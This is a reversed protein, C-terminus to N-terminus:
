SVLTIDPRTRVEEVIEPRLRGAPDENGRDKDFEMCARILAEYADQVELIELNGLFACVAKVAQVLQHPRLNRMVEKEAPCDALREAASKVRSAESQLTDLIIRLEDYSLTKM